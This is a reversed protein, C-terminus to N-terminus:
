FNYSNFSTIAEFLFMSSHFEKPISSRIQDAKEAVFNKITIIADALDGLNYKTEIYEVNGNVETVKEFFNIMNPAHKMLIPKFIESSENVKAIQVDLTALYMLIKSFQRAKKWEDPTLDAEKMGVKKWNSFSSVILRLLFFGALARHNLEKKGFFTECLLRHYRLLSRVIVPIQDVSPMMVKWFGELLRDIQQIDNETPDQANFTEEKAIYIIISSMTTNYFDTLENNIIETICSTYTNHRFIEDPTKINTSIEIYSILKILRLRQGYMSFLVSISRLLKDSQKTDKHLQSILTTSFNFDHTLFMKAFYELLAPSLADNSSFSQCANIIAESVPFLNDPAFFPPIDFPIFLKEFNFKPSNSFTITLLNKPDGTNLTLSKDKAEVKQMTAKVTTTSDPDSFLLINNNDFYAMYICGKKKFLTNNKSIIKVQSVLPFSPKNLLEIPTLFQLFREFLKLKLEKSAYYKQSNRLTIFHNHILIFYYYQEPSLFQKFTRHDVVAVNATTEILKYPIILHMMDSLTQISAQAKQPVKNSEVYLNECGPSEHFDYLIKLFTPFDSSPKFKTFPSNLSLRPPEISPQENELEGEKDQFFHDKLLFPLFTDCM